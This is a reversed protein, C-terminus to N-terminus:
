SHFEKLAGNTGGLDREMPKSQPLHAALPPHSRWSFAPNEVLYDLVGSETRAIRACGRFRSM